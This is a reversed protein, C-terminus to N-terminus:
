MQYGSLYEARYDQPVTDVVSQQSIPGQFNFNHHTELYELYENCNIRGLCRGVGASVRGIFLSEFDSLRNFIQIRCEHGWAGQEQNKELAFSCVQTEYARMLFGLATYFHGESEFSLFPRRAGFQLKMYHLGFLNYHLFGLM